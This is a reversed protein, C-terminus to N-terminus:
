AHDNPAFGTIRIGAGKVKYRGNIYLLVPTLAEVAVANMLPGADIGRMGIAEILAITQAKAAEDDGCVLVDCDVSHDLKKLHVASVNQFAAVVKVSEGLMAQAEVCASKGEPVHVTRYDAPNIPVTVDIFLKGQAAAKIAAITEAHATYPVSLVIIQAAAAADANALGHIAQKGLATNLEAAKQAAREPDRSGIIVPYGKHAWRLALAAGEKGTGGIVALTPLTESMM